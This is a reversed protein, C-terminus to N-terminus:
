TGPYFSPKQEAEQPLESQLVAEYLGSRCHHSQNLDDMAEFAETSQHIM